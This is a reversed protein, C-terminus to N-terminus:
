IQIVSSFQNVHLNPKLNHPNFLIEGTEEKVHTRLELSSESLNKCRNTALGAEIHDCNLRYRMPIM